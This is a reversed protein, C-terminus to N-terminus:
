APSLLAAIRREMGSIERPVSLCACVTGTNIYSIINALLGVFHQTNCLENIIFNTSLGSCPFSFM